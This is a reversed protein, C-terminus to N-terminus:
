LYGRLLETRQRLDAIANQVPNIEFMTVILIKLNPASKLPNVWLHVAVIFEVSDTEPLAENNPCLLTQQAFEQLFTNEVLKITYM